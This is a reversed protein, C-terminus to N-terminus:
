TKEDEHTDVDVQGHIHTESGPISLVKYVCWVFFWTMGGVSLLMIIWGGASM